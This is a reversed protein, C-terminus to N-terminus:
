RITYLRVNGDPSSAGIIPACEGPVRGVAVSRVPPFATTSSSALTGSQYRIQQAVADFVFAAEGAAVVDSAPPSLDLDSPGTAASQTKRGQVVFDEVTGALTGVVVDRTGDNNLDAVALCTPGSPVALKVPPLGIATASGYHFYDTPVFFNGGVGGKGGHLITVTGAGQDATVIDLFGDQNLDAIAVAVPAIGVLDIPGSSVSPAAPITGGLAFTTSSSIQVASTSGDRLLVTVSDENVNATVIDLRGDNNLDAVALSVPGNGVPYAGAPLGPPNIASPIFTGDGAPNVFCSITNSTANVTVFDITGDGDMDIAIVQRPGSGNVPFSVGPALVGGGLNRHVVVDNSGFCAVLVDNLGDNDVDAIAVSEPQLGTVVPALPAAFTGTGDNLYVRITNSTRDAVVLDRYGDRNLDGFAIGRPDMGAPLTATPTAALTGQIGPWSSRPIRTVQVSNATVNEDWAILSRFNPDAAISEIQAGAALPATEAVYNVPSGFTGDGRGLFLSVNGGNLSSTVLDPHCDGNFDGVALSRLVVTGPGTFGYTGSLTLGGAGDGLLVSLSPTTTDGAVVDLRHDGNVDSLALRWPTKGAGVDVTSTESFSYPILPTQTYVAVKHLGPYAVILDAWRDGNMDLAQPGGDLPDRVQLPDTTTTSPDACLIASPFPPVTGSLANAPLALTAIAPTTLSGLLGGQFILIQDPSKTLVAVDYFNQSAFHGLALGVPTGAAAITVLTSTFSGSNSVNHAIVINGAGADLLLVDLAGDHDLDAVAADVFNTGTAVTVSPSSAGDLSFCALAKTPAISVVGSPVRPLFPVALVKGASATGLPSLNPNSYTAPALVPGYHYGDRLTASAVGNGTLVVDVPGPTSSAPVVVTLTQSDVVTISAGSALATGFAISAVTSASFNQGKITVAMGGVIPGQNPNVSAVALPPTSTVGGRSGCAPLLLALVALLIVRNSVFVTRM